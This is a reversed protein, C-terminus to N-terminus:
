MYSILRVKINALTSHDKITALAAAEPEQLFELVTTGIPRKRLMGSQQAANIMAQEAYPPWIVPTTIIVKIRSMAFLGDAVGAEVVKLIHRWLGSLFDGIVDVPLKGLNKMM